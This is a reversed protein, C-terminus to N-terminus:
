SFDPTPAIEISVSANAATSVTCDSIDIFPNCWQGQGDIGAYYRIKQDNGSACSAYFLRPGTASGEKIVMIDGAASPEFMISKLKVQSYPTDTSAVWDADLGTVQIFSESMTTTNAM